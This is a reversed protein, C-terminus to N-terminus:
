FNFWFDARRQTFIM